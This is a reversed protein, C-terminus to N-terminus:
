SQSSYEFQLDKLHYNFYLKNAHLPYTTDSSYIRTIYVPSPSSKELETDKIRVIGEATALWLLNDNDTELGIISTFFNSVRSYNFIQFKNNEPILKDLGQFFAIWFNGNVDERIAKIFNSSLGDSQSLNLINFSDNRNKTLRFVGNYRSGAWISGKSDEYLSRINIGPLFYKAESIQINKNVVEYRVRILGNDWTGAWLNNNRDILLGSIREDFIKQLGKASKFFLGEVQGAFGNGANDCILIRAGSPNSLTPITRPQMLLTDFTVSKTRGTLIVPNTNLVAQYFNDDNNKFAPSFIGTAKNFDKTGRSTGVLFHGEKFPYMLFQFDNRSVGNEVPFLTIGSKTVLKSLGVATGFWLNKEKDQFITTIINSSLGDKVTFIQHSGYISVKVIGASTAFWINGEGDEFIDAIHSQKLFTFAAPLRLDLMLPNAGPVFEILHIGSSPAVWLRGKSDKYCRIESYSNGPIKIQSLLKYNKNFVKLSTIETAAFSTDSLVAANFFTSYPQDQRPKILQGNRVNHIGNGDTLAIIQQWPTKLFGNVTVPM